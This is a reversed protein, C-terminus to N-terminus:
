NLKDRGRWGRKVSGRGGGRCRGETGTCISDGADRSEKQRRNKRSILLETVLTEGQLSLLFEN